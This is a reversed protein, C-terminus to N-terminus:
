NPRVHYMYKLTHDIGITVGSGCYEYKNMEESGSVLSNFNDGKNIQPNPLELLAGLHYYTCKRDEGSRQLPVYIYEEDNPSILADAPIYKEFTRDKLSIPYTGNNQGHYLSLGLQITAIDSVKESDRNKARIKYISPFIIITLIAIIGIVVLIEIITFGKKM